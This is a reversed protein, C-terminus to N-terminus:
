VRSIVRHMRRNDPASRFGPRGGPTVPAAQLDFADAQEIRVKAFEGVTLHAADRVYVVGDIEPADAFSRALAVGDPRVQDVLVDMVHGLKKRLKAKSIREAAAMLRARREQKIEEPVHDPLDRSAAGQVNEYAFCGVRDLQAEELWDLLYQFDAETEGPFGVVFTSRITLKPAIARWAAIRELTKAENAPRKMAKLVSPSAHQFPIDLYPLIKGEAMLPIIKDVHPYPYVYHMRVWIGLEGLGRSLDELNAKWEQGRWEGPAYKIDLGYASTDQAVVLLEKVGREALAEAERLVEGIPRSALDGRLSPIICFSCRHDCGESIKLYAYHKPTLKLGAPPTPIVDAFPQPASRHVAAVVADYAQAGTIAALDPFRDRILKEESGMCGTVIVPRGSAQAEAIAELSEERASDLFACTNVIIADAGAYDGVTQYGDARLRTLIRESDVLAKPCGLSVMGVSKPAPGSM